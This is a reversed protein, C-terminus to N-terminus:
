LNRQEQNKHPCRCAFNYCEPYGSADTDLCHKIIKFLIPYKDGEDEPKQQKGDGKYKALDWAYCLQREVALLEIVAHCVTGWRGGQVHGKFKNMDKHYHQAVDSTFCRSLLRQRPASRKLMRCVHKMHLVTDDWTQLAFQLDEAVNHIMHSPGDVNLSRTLDIMEDCENESEPWQDDDDGDSDPWNDDDICGPQPEQLEATEGAAFTHGGLVDAIKVPEVRPIARETGADKLVGVCNQMCSSLDMHSEFELRLSWAVRQLKFKLSSRGQGLVTLPTQHDCIMESAMEMLASEDEVQKEMEFDAASAGQWMKFLQESIDLLMPLDVRKIRCLLTVQYNRGFQPSSDTMLYWACGGDVRSAMAHQRRWWLMIAGDCLFRSRSVEAKSLMRKARLRQIAEDVQGPPLILKACLELVMRLDADSRLADCAVVQYFREVFKPLVVSQTSSNIGDITNQVVGIWRQLGADAAGMDELTQAASRMAETLKDYRGELVEVGVFDCVSAPFAGRGGCPAAVWNMSNARPFGDLVAFCTWEGSCVRHAVDFPLQVACRLNQDCWSPKGVLGRFFPESFDDVELWTTGRRRTPLLVVHEYEQPLLSFSSVDFFFLDGELSGRPSVIRWMQYQARQQPTLQASHDYVFSPAVRVIGVVMRSDPRLPSDLAVGGLAGRAASPWLFSQDGLKRDREHSPRALVWALAM